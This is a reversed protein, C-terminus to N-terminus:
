YQFSPSGITDRCYNTLKFYQACLRQPSSCDLKKTSFFHGVQPCTVSRSQRVFVDFRGKKLEVGNKQLSFEITQRGSKLLPKQLVSNTWLNFPKLSQRGNQDLFSSQKTRPDNLNNVILLAGPEQPRSFTLVDYEAPMLISEVCDFSTVNSGENSTCEATIEAYITQSVFDSGSSFKIEAKIFPPSLLLSILFILAM